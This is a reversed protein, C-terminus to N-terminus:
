YEPRSADRLQVDGTKCHTAAEHQRIVQRAACRRAEAPAILENFQDELAEDGSAMAMDRDMLLRVHEATAYAYERWMRDCEACAGQPQPRRGDAM